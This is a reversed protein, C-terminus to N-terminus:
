PEPDALFEIPNTLFDYLPMSESIKVKNPDREFAEVDSLIQQHIQEILDFDGVPVLAAISMGNRTIVIREGAYAVRSLIDAVRTRLESSSIAINGGKGQDEDMIM